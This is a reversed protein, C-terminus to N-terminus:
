IGLEELKLHRKHSEDIIIQVKSKDVWHGQLFDIIGQRNKQDKAFKDNSQYDIANVKVQTESVDIVEVEYDVSFNTKSPSHSLAFDNLLGKSGPYFKLLTAERNKQKGLNNKLEKVEKKYSNIKSYMFFIVALLIIPTISLLFIINELSKIDM